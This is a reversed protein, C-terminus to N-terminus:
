SGVTLPVSLSQFLFEQWTMQCQASTGDKKMGQELGSELCFQLTYFDKLHTCTTKVRGGTLRLGHGALCM